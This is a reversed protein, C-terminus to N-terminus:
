FMGQQQAKNLGLIVVNTFIVFSATFRLRPRLCGTCKVLESFYSIIFHVLMTRNLNNFYVYIFLIFLLTNEFFFKKSKVPYQKRM